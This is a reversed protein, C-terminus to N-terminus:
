VYDAVQVTQSHFIFAGVFFVVLAAGGATALDSAAPGEGRMVIARAGEIIGAMPNLRIWPQAWAPAMKVSYIIPTGWFGVTLFSTVLYYTDRYRVHMVSAALAVGVLLIVEILVLLPLALLTENFRFAHPFMFYFLFLLVLEMGLHILHSLITAVPFLFRPFTTRKVLSGNELISGVGATTGNTFFQWFISGTLYVISFNEIQVKLIHGFAVTLTVMMVLPHGLSWFLGLSQARYRAKFDKLVLVWLTERLAWGESLALAFAEFPGHPKGSPLDVGIETGLASRHVWPEERSGGPGAAGDKAPALVDEM